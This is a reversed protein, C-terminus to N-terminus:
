GIKYNALHETSLKDKDATYQFSWPGPTPSTGTVLVATIPVALAFGSIVFVPFVFSFVEVGAPHPAAAALHVRVAAMGTYHMGTVAIAMVVCALLRHVLLDLKATFWLAVTAAVVAIVVSLAVLTPEYSIAGQVHVARMGTYHMINVALGTILGAVILRWWAFDTRADFVVLGVFVAIVALVASLATNPIDYRVPMGPTAFGLMATFHMIWIGVGGISVAAMGLWSLRGQSTTARRARVACALGVACGLASTLYALIMLWRGMAFHEM